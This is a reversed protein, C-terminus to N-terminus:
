RQLVDWLWACGLALLSATAMVMAIWGRRVVIRRRDDQRDRCPPCHCTRWRRTCDSDPLRQDKRSM